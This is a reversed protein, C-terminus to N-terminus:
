GNNVTITKGYRADKPLNDASSGHHRPFILLQFTLSNGDLRVSFQQDVGFAKDYIRKAQAFTKLIRKTEADNARQQARAAKEAAAKQAARERERRDFERQADSRASLTATAASAFQQRLEKQKPVAM